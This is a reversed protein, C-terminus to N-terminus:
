TLNGVPIYFCRVYVVSPDNEYKINIFHALPKSRQSDGQPSKLIQRIESLSTIDIGHM